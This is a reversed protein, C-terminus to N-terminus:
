SGTRGCVPAEAQHRHLVLDAVAPHGALPASVWAAKSRRLRDYFLGPALLYTAVAVPSGTRTALVAMAEDVTPQSASLYAAVVPVGLHGALLEAQRQTDAVAQPDCSGAAALVIPTGRPAGAEALRDALAPVLRADPGLPAAVRVRGARGIGGTRADAALGTEGPSVTALAAVHTAATTVAVSAAAGAIDHRVHYGASLLLPVIVVDGADRVAAALATTLDPQALELFATRVDVGPALGAVQATLGLVAEAAAPDRSGHAVALLV